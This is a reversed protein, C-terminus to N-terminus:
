GLSQVFKALKSKKHAATNRHIIGKTSLRDLIASVKRYKEEAAAKDTTGRLDKVATKVRSKNMRNYARKRESTRMRKIASKHQPM